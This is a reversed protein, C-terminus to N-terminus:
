LEGSIDSAFQATTASAVDAPDMRGSPPRISRVGLDAHALHRAMEGTALLLPGDGAPTEPVAAVYDRSEDSERSCNLLPFQKVPNSSISTLLSRLCIHLSFFRGDQKYTSTIM